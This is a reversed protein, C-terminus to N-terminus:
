HVLTWAGPEVWWARQGTMRDLDGDANTGIEVGDPLRVTVARGSARRVMRFPEGGTGKPGRVSPPGVVVVELRGDDPRADPFLPAGGGITSGNGVGVMLVPWSGDAPVEDDVEVHLRVGRPRLLAAVAGLPFAIKGLREKWPLAKKTANAGIGLHVVNVVIGGHDDRLLDYDHPRGDV